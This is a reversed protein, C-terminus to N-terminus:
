LSDTLTWTLDAALTRARARSAATSGARGTASSASGLRRGAFYNPDPTVDPVDVAHGSATHNTLSLSATGSGRCQFGRSVFANPV